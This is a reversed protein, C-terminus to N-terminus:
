GPWRSVAQDLTALLADFGFPKELFGDYGRGGTERTVTEESFGSMLVVPVNPCSDKLAKLLDTGHIEPLMLDLLVVDVGGEREGILDLATRGDPAALVNFGAGELFARVVGSFEADDEVLLISRLGTPQPAPAKDAQGRAPPSREATAEESAPLYLWFTTGRGASSGYTLEGGHQRAINRATALGLGTGEGRRKTTFFPEFVQGGIADPIGAGEDRVAIALYAGPALGPPTGAADERVERNAASVQLRGRGAALIAERGNLCLNM